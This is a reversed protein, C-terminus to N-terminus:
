DLLISDRRGTGLLTLELVDGDGCDRFDAFVVCPLLVGVLALSSTSGAGAGAGAEGHRDGGGAGLGAAVGPGPEAGTDGVGAAAAVLGGAAMEKLEATDEALVLVLEGSIM